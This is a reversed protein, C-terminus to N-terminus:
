DSGAERLQSACYAPLGQNRRTNSFSIHISDGNNEVFTLRHVRAYDDSFHVELKTFFSQRLPFLHLEPTQLNPQVIRYTQRLTVPDIHVWDLIHRVIATLLTREAADAPRLAEPSGEWLAGRGNRFLFGSPLPKTYAWLVSDGKDRRDANARTRGGRRLCFHGYSLLPSSLMAMRKEQVFDASLTHIRAGQAAAMDLIHAATDDYM